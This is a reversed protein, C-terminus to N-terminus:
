MLVGPTSLSLWIVESSKWKICHRYIKYIVVSSFISTCVWDSGGNAPGMSVTKVAKCGPRAASTLYAKGNERGFGKLWKCCAPVQDPVFCSLEFIAPWSASFWWAIFEIWNFHLALADSWRLSPAWKKGNHASTSATRLWVLEDFSNM